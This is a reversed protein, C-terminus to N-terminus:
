PYPPIQACKRVLQRSSKSTSHTIEQLPARFCLDEAYFCLVDWPAHIKIFFTIKKQSQIREEELELGNKRLNVMFKARWKDYISSEAPSKKKANDLEEEYVLVFDTQRKGDSFFCSFNYQDGRDGDLGKLHIGRDSNSAM